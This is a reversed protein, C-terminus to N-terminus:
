TRVRPSSSSSASSSVVRDPQDASSRTSLSSRASPRSSSSSTPALRRPRSRRVGRPDARAVGCPRRLARPPVGRKGWWVPPLAEPPPPPGYSALAEFFDAAPGEPTFNAMGITGGPRCVRLLEDAVQQHDPAFMARSPLPSSTSSATTSPFHRRTPRWGSSSWETRARKAAARRSTRPPSTRRWSRRARRPPASPWTGTGAAVDLVRQGARIGCAEVVVPGVEWVTQKAFRHDDGLAWM